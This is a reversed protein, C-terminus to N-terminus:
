CDASSQVYSGDSCEVDYGRAECSKAAWDWNAGNVGQDDWDKCEEKTWDQKCEDVVGGTGVCSGGGGLGCNSALGALFLAALLPATNSIRSM